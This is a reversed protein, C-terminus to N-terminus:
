LISAMFPTNNSLTRQALLRLPSQRKKVGDADSAPPIDSLRPNFLSHTLWIFLLNMLDNAAIMLSIWGARKQM